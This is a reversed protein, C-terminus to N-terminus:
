RRRAAHVEKATNGQSEQVLPRPGMEFSKTRQIVRARHGRRHALRTADLRLARCAFDRRFVSREARQGAPPRAAAGPRSPSMVNYERTSACKTVHASRERFSKASTCAGRGAARRALRTYLSARTDSPLSRQEIAVGSSLVPAMAAPSSLVSDASGRPEVHFSSQLVRQRM